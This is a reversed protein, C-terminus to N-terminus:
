TWEPNELFIINNSLEDPNDAEAPFHQALLEGCKEIAGIIASAADRKGIGEALEDAILKWLDDSIKASIGSDAIIRVQRELLSIFILIGSNERTKYVGNEAFCRLARSNVCRNQIARPVILRDIFPIGAFYFLVAILGFITIGYFAPLQWDSVFWYRSKLASEIGSAFPLLACFVILSALVSFLLERFSYRASEKAAAVFIEGSTKSEARQVAQAIKEIAADDLKLKKQIYTM